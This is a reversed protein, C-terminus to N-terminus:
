FATLRTSVGGNSGFYTSRGGVSLREGICQCHNNLRYTFNGVSSTIGGRSSGTYSTLSHMGSTSRRSSVGGGSNHFNTTNM